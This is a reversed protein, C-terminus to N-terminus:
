GYAHGSSLLMLPAAAAVMADMANTTKATRHAPSCALVMRAENEQRMMGIDEAEVVVVEPLCRWLLHHRGDFDRTQM